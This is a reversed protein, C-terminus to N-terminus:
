SFTQLLLYTSAGLPFGYSTRLSGSSMRSALIVASAMLLAKVNNAYVLVLIM